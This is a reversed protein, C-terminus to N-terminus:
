TNRCFAAGGRRRAVVYGLLLCRAFMSGSREIVVLAHCQELLPIDSAGDLFEAGRDLQLRLEYLGVQIQSRGEQSAAFEVGCQVLESNSHLQLGPVGLSV